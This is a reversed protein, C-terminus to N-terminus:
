SDKNQKRVRSPLIVWVTFLVMFAVAGFVAEM